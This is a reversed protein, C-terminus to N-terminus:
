STCMEISIIQYCITNGIYIPNARKEFVAGQM